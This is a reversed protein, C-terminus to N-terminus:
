RIRYDCGAKSENRSKVNAEMSEFMRNSTQRNGFCYQGLQKRRNPEQSTLGLFAFLFQNM